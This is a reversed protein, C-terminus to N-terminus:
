ATTSWCIELQEGFKAGPRRLPGYGLYDAGTSFTVDLSATTATSREYDLGFKVPIAGGVELGVSLRGYTEREIEISIEASDGEPSQAYPYPKAEIGALDAAGRGCEDLEKPIPRSIPNSDDVETLKAHLGYAVETGDIVTKTPVLLLKAPIVTEVCQSRATYSDRMRTTIKYGGNGGSGAVTLEAECGEGTEGGITHTAQCGDRQPRHLRMVPIWIAIPDPPDPDPVFEVKGSGLGFLGPGPVRFTETGLIAQGVSWEDPAGESLKLQLERHGRRGFSVRAAGETEEAIETVQWTDPGRILSSPAQLDEYDLTDFLDYRTIAADTGLEVEGSIAGPSEAVIPLLVTMPGEPDPIEEIGLIEIEGGDGVTIDIPDARACRTL